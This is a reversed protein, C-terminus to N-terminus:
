LQILLTILHFENSLIRRKKDQIVLAGSNAHTKLNKTYIERVDINQSLKRFNQFFKTESHKAQEYSRESKKYVIM